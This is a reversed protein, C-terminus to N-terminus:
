TNEELAEIRTLFQELIDIFEINQKTTKAFLQIAFNLDKELKEVREELTKENETM